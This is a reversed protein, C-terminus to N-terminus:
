IMNNAKRVIWETILLSVMLILMLRSDWLERPLLRISRRRGAPIWEGLQDIETLRIEGHDSRGALSRQGITRMVTDNAQRNLAEAQPLEIVIEKDDVIEAAHPHDALATVRYMGTRATVSPDIQGKFAGPQEDVDVAPLTITEARGSDVDILQVDFTTERLPSFAEDYAEVEITIPRGAAFREGGTSITVRKGARGGALHDVLNSWFRRHYHGGAILRWRWTSDFGLYAARGTGPSQVVLLPEPADRVTRRLPNAHEALVRAGPKIRAIPHTWYLGPMQRWVDASEEASGGLRMIQHDRGYSTLQLPWPQPRRSGLREALDITNPALTVPLIAALDKFGDDDLLVSQSRKGGAVYCLGGGHRTVYRRLIEVFTPDFGEVTPRPDLLIVVQYGPKDPDDPTGILDVLDRPLRSLKMGTSASQNVDEDANQQWVSVRYVDDSRILFNRLYQFEWGPDGGVLLINIKEDSVNVRVPRSANDATDEEAVDASAVARLEVPGLEQPEFTLPVRLTRGSGSAAPGTSLQVTMPEGVPQWTETGEARVQLILEIPEDGLNRGALLATLEVTTKRRVTRPADLGIVSLNKRPTPDGVTVAYVSVPRDNALDVAALLRADGGETTVQGDSLIVVAALRRGRTRDLADRIARAIDTSFGGAKLDAVLAAADVAEPADGDSEEPGGGTSVIRSFPDKATRDGSFGVILIPHDAALRALAGDDRALVARVLEQRSKGALGAPDIGTLEALAMREADDGYTDSFSMSLSEDVIVVVTSRLESVYRLVVAPRLLAVLALGFLAIRCGALFAKAGRPAGGERRYNRVTLVVLGAFAVVILLRVYPGYDAVVDLRWSDAGALEAADLGLLWKVAANM